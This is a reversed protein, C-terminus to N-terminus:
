ERMFSLTIDGRLSPFFLKEYASLNSDFVFTVAGALVLLFLIQAFLITIQPLLYISTIKKEKENM